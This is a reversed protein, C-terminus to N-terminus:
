NETKRNAKARGRFDLKIDVVAILAILVITHPFIAAIYLAILWGMGLQRIGVVGHAIALGQVLLVMVSPLALGYAIDSDGFWALLAVGALAVRVNAPLNLAHFSERFGGPQYVRAQWSRGLYLGILTNMLFGSALMGTGFRALADVTANVSEAPATPASAEVFRGMYDRWMAPPSDVFVYVGVVVLLAIGYAALTALELSVTARLVLAVVIVPGWFVAGTYLAFAPGAPLAGGPVLAHFAMAALASLGIALAGSRWGHRMLYMAIAAASFWMFPPLVAGLTLTSSAVLATQWPGKSAFQALM